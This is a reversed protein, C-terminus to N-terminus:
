AVPGFGFYRSKVPAVADLPPEATGGPQAPWARPGADLDDIMSQLAVLGDAMAQRYTLAAADATQLLAWQGADDRELLEWRFAGASPETVHVAIPRLPARM